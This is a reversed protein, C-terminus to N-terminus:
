NQTAPSPPASSKAATKKAPKPAPPKRGSIKDHQLRAADLEAEMAKLEAPTKVKVSRTPHQEGVPVFDSEGEPRAEKVFDAPPGPDTKLDLARLVSDVPHSSFGDEARAGASWALLATAGAFLRM